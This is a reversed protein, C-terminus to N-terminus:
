KFWDFLRGTEEYKERLYSDEFFYDVSINCPNYGQEFLLKLPIPVGYYTRPADGWSDTDWFPRIPDLCYSVTDLSLFYLNLQVFTMMLVLIILIKKNESIGFILLTIIMIIFILISTALFGLVGNKLSIISCIIGFIFPIIFLFFYLPDTEKLHSFNFLFVDFRRKFFSSEDKKFNLDSKKKKIKNYDPNKQKYLYDGILQGFVGLVLTFFVTLILITFLLLIMDKIEILTVVSVSLIFGVLLLGCGKPLLPGANMKPNTMRM